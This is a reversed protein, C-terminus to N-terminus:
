QLIGIWRWSFTQPPVCKKSFSSIISFSCTGVGQIDGITAAGFHFFGSFTQIQTDTNSMLCVFLAIDIIM